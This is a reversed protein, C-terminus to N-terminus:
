RCDCSSICMDDLPLVIGSSAWIPVGPRSVGLNEGKLCNLSV